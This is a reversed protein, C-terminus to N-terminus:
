KEESTKITNPVGEVAGYTVMHGSSTKDDNIVCRWAYGTTRDKKVRDKSHGGSAEDMLSIADEREPTYINLMAIRTPESCIRLATDRSVPEASLSFGTFRQGTAKSMESSDLFLRFEGREVDEILENCIDILTFEEGGLDPSLVIRPAELLHFGLARDMMRENEQPFGTEGERGLYDGYLCFAGMCCETGPTRRPRFNRLDADFAEMSHSYEVPERGTMEAILRSADERDPTYFSLCLTRGKLGFVSRIIDMEVPAESIMLTDNNKKRASIQQFVIRYEGQPCGRISDRDLVRMAFRRSDLEPCLVLETGELHAGYTEDYIEQMFGLKKERNKNFLGCM